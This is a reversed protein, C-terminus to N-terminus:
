GGLRPNTVSVATLLNLAAWRGVAVNLGGEHRVSPLRVAQIGSRFAEQSFRQCASRDHSKLDALALGLAGLASPHSGEIVLLRGVLTTCRIRTGSFYPHNFLFEVEATEYTESSYLPVPDGVQHCRGEYTAVEAIEFADRSAATIRVLKLDVEKAFRGIDVM